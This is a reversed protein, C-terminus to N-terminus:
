NYTGSDPRYIVWKKDFGMEHSKYTKDKDSVAVFRFTRFPHEGDMLLLRFDEFRVLFKINTNEGLNVPFPNSNLLSQLSYYKFERKSSILEISIDKLVVNKIASLKIIIASINGKQKQISINLILEPFQQISLLYYRVQKKRYNYVTIVLVVIIAITIYTVTSEM